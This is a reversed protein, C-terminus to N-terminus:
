SQMQPHRDNGELQHLKRELERIGDENCWGGKETPPYDNSLSLCFQQVADWEPYGTPFSTFDDWDWQGGTGDLFERITRIVYDETEEYTLKKTRSFM